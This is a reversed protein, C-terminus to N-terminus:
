AFHKDHLRLVIEVQKESLVSPLKGQVTQAWVSKVFSNEWDSLDTTDIMGSLKLLMNNTSHMKTM